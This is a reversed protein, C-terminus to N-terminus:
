KDKRKEFKLATQLEKVAINLDKVAAARHGGYDHDAGELVAATKKLTVIAEALQMNSQAQPEKGGGVKGGAGSGKIKHKTQFEVALKLEHHAAGVAKVAAARHGGYDHDAQELMVRTQHLVALGEMLQANSAAQPEPKRPAASATDSLYSAMALGALLLGGALVVVRSNKWPTLM